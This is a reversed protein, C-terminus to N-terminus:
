FQFHPDGFHSVSACFSDVNQVVRVFHFHPDRETSLHFHPDHKAPCPFHPNINPVYSIHIPIAWRVSIHIRDPAACVCTNDGAKFLPRREDCLGWPHGDEENRKGKRGAGDGRGHAFSRERSKVTPGPPPCSPGFIVGFNDLRPRPPGWSPGQPGCYQGLVPLGFQCNSSEATLHGWPPGFIGGLPGLLGCPPGFSAGLPGLVTRSAGFSSGLPGRPAEWSM